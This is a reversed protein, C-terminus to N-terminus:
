SVFREDALFPLRKMKSVELSFFGFEEAAKGEIMYVGKGRFPYKLLQEPFHTTDFYNGERDIWTGFAMREKKITTLSKSCVFYGAMRIPKNKFSVMQRALITDNLPNTDEVLDFPNCLPFGLLELEDFSQSLENEKVVSLMSAFSFSENATNQVRMSQHDTESFLSYHNDQEGVATVLANKDWFLEYKSKGSFRFAGIRILLDLQTPGLPV